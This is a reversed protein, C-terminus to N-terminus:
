AAEMELSETIAEFTDQQWVIRQNERAWPLQGGVPVGSAKWYSASSEAYGDTIPRFYRYPLRSYMLLAMPGNNVGLNMSASEYLALRVDVDFAALPYSTHWFNRETAETDPVFVVREGNSRLWDAVKVWEAINSNREPKIHTERITIVVPSGGIDEKVIRRARESPQLWKAKKQHVLQKLLHGHVPKDVSYGFPYVPEFQRAEDRTRCVTVEGSLEALPLLLNDMRFAQEAPTCKQYAREGPVFVTHNCGQGRAACLFTLFDYSYPSTSLDYFASRREQM